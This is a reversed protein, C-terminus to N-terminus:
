YKLGVKKALYKFDEDNRIRGQQCNKKAYSGLIKVIIMAMSRYYDIVKKMEKPNDPILKLVDVSLSAMSVPIKHKRQNRLKDLETSKDRLSVRKRSAKFKAVIPTIIQDNTTDLGLIQM